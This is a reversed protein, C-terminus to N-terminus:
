FMVVRPVWTSEAAIEVLVGANTFFSTLASWGHTTKAPTTDVSVTLNRTGAGDVRDVVEVYDADVTPTVDRTGIAAICVSSATPMSALTATMTASQGGATASQVLPWTVDAGAVALVTMVWRHSAGSVTVQGSGPASGTVAYAVAVQVTGGTANSRVVPTSWASTGALSDTFTVTDVADCVAVAVLLTGAAPSFSGSAISTAAGADVGFAAETVTPM